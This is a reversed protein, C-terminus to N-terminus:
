FMRRRKWLFQGGKKINVEIESEIILEMKMEPDRRVVIGPTWWFILGYYLAYLEPSFARKETIVIKRFGVIGRAERAMDFMTGLSPRGKRRKKRKRENRRPKHGRSVRKRIVFLGKKVEIDIFSAGASLILKCRM